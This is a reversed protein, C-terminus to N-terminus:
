KQFVIRHEVDATQIVVTFPDSTKVKEFFVLGDVAKKPKLITTNLVSSTVQQSLANMTDSTYKTSQDYSNFSLTMGDLMQQQSTQALTTDGSLAGIVGIAFSLAGLAGAYIASNRDKKEQIKALSDTTLANIKKGNKILQIQEPGFTIKKKSLNAVTVRVPFGYKSIARYDSSQTDM